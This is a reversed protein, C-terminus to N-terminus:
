AWRFAHVRRVLFDVREVPTEPLLGHSLNFLYRPYHRAKKLLTDIARGLTKEDSFLIANWLNGQVGLKTKRLLPDELDVSHCLSIFDAGCDQILSLFPATNKLFYISPIKVAKFIKQVYPLVFQSYLQPSLIGGWTDFLQFAHIGADKQLNLYRITERTLLTLLQHFGKPDEAMWRFVRSFNKTSGGEILYVLTTFPSGAFGLLATKPIQKRILQITQTVHSLDDFPHMKKISERNRLPNRVVPGIGNVFDIHFGMALPLTLIDQFLIAADLPFRRLPQCTVEAAIDPTKLMTLFSYKKKLAQYEPLYRGAQRMLWVPVRTNTGEFSQLIPSSFTIPITPQM